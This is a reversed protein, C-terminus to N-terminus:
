GPSSTRWRCSCCRRRARRPVARCARADRQRHRLPLQPPHARLGQAPRHHRHHLHDHRPRRRPRARAAPRDDEGPRGGRRGRSWTPRRATADDIQWVHACRRAAPRPRADVLTRPARRDRRRLRGRRLRVLIWQSRSPAPRRTSRCPSRAPPGSRTTSCRGSTAPRSMLAVRDGPEIGAAILGKALPSSRTASSGAPSTPQWDGGVTPRAFQVADPAGRRQGLGPRDPQGRRRRHGVAPVSFERM